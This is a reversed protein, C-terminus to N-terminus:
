IKRKEFHIRHRLRKIVMKSSQNREKSSMVENGYYKEDRKSELLQTHDAGKGTVPPPFM